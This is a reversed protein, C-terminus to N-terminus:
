SLGIASLEAIAGSTGIKLVLIQANKVIRPELSLSRQQIQRGRMHGHM